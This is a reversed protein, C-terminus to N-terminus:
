RMAGVWRVAARGDRVRSEWTAGVALFTVGVVGIVVWRPLAIAAPGLQVVLVLAVVCAGAVFPAKWRLRLGVLLIGLAALGLLVGRVSTPGDLAQPLSPLLSLVLGPSLAAVSEGGWRRAGDPVRSRLLAWTGAGLLVVAFPLTYAEVVDVDSAVLRLVYAGGLSGAGWWRLWARDPVTLSLVVLGTGLVTLLLATWATTTGAAGLAVATVIWLVAATEVGLRGRRTRLAFASVAGVAGAAVLLALSTTGAGADALRLVPVACAVGAAAGTGALLERLLPERARVAAVVVLATATPWLAVAAEWDFTTLAAGVVAAVASLALYLTLRGHRLGSLAILVAAVVCWSIAVQLTTVRADALAFSAAVVLVAAVEGGSRAAPDPVRLVVLVLTLLGTALLAGVLVEGPGGLAMVLPGVAGAGWVGAALVAVARAVADDASLRAAVVLLVSAVSWAVVCAWWADVALVPALVVVALAIWRWGAWVATAGTRDAVLWLAVGGLITALSLVLATPDADAVLALGVVLVVGTAVGPAHSRLPAAVRWAAAGVLAVCVLVALVAALWAHDAGPVSAVDLRHGLPQGGDTHLAADIGEGLVGVWPLLGSVAVLSPVLGAARLGRAPAASGRPWVLVAAAVGCAVLGGRGPWAEEAPLAVLLIAGSAGVAATVSRVTVELRQVASAALGLLAVLLLPVGHGQVTLDRLSPHVVAEVVAAAVATLGAAVVAGAAVLAGLTVAGTRLVVALVGAVVLSALAAWFVTAGLDFIQEAVAWAGFWVAVGGVVSVTVLEAGDDLRRRGAGVVLRVLGVTVVSWGLTWVSADVADLGLLGQGRAQFWDLALFGLFVTWLAEASSRLRRRTVVQAAAGVVATLALLVLARGLVGMPGWYVTIFIAGAVLLALAGLALIVTGAGVQRRPPRPTTPTAGLPPLPPAAAPASATAPASAPAPAPAGETPSGPSAAPGQVDPAAGSTPAVPAATTAARALEVAADVAQLAQWVRGGEPTGLDLGCTRCRLDSAIPERCGACVAPDAYRM